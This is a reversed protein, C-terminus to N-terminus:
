FIQVVFLQASCCRNWCVVQGSLLKFHTKFPILRHYMTLHFWQIVGVFFFFFSMRKHILTVDKRSTTPGRYGIFLLSNSGTICQCHASHCHELCGQYFKCSFLAFIWWQLHFLQPLHIRPSLIHYFIFLSIHYQVFPYSTYLFIM